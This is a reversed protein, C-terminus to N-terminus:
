CFPGERIKGDGLGPCLVKHARLEWHDCVSIRPDTPFTGAELFSLISGWVCSM